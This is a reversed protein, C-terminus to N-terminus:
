DMTFTRWLASISGWLGFGYLASKLLIPITTIDDISGPLKDICWIALLLLPIRAFVWWALSGLVWWMARSLFAPRPAEYDTPAGLPFAQNTATPSSVPRVSRNPFTRGLIESFDFNFNTM